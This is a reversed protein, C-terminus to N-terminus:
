KITLNTFDLRDQVSKTARDPVGPAANPQYTGMESDTRMFWYDQHKRTRASDCNYWEGQLYVVNWCHIWTPHQVYAYRNDIGAIDLLAKTCAYYNYCDGRRTNFGQMAAGTWHSKDSDDVYSINENVWKCIRMAIEVDTYDDRDIIEDYVTQAVAYVEDINVYNSPREEVTVKIPVLAVNGSDDTSVYNVEYTGPTNTDLGTTDIDLTPNETYDDSVTVGKFFKLNDGAVVTLNQAGEIVPPTTDAFVTFPVDVVGKNGYADTLEVPVTTNGAKSINPTGKYAVNVTGSLDYLNTVTENADPAHGALVTQPVPSGTPPTTDCVELLSTTKLGYLKISIQYSGPVDTVIKSLDSLVTANNLEGDFFIARNVFEGTEVKVNHNIKAFDTNFQWGLGVGLAIGALASLICAPTNKSARRRYKKSVGYMALEDNSYRAM